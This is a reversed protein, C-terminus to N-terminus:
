KAAAPAAPPELTIKTARQHLSLVAIPPTSAGVGGGDDVRAGRLELPGAHREVHLIEVLLRTPPQTEKGERDTRHLELVDGARFKRDEEVRVEARKHGSVIADFNDAWCKLRHVYAANGSSNLVPAKAEAPIM